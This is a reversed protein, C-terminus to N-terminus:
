KIVKETRESESKTKDMEKGDPREFSEQSGNLKPGSIFIPYYGRLFIKKM